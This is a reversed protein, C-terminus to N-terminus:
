GVIGAGSLTNRDKRAREIIRLERRITKWDGIDEWVTELSDYDAEALADIQGPDAVGYQERYAQEEAVLASLKTELEADTHERRLENARVWEFYAHNRQYQKPRGDIPEVIGRASLWELHERAAGESCHARSAVDDVTAPEYLQIATDYVRDRTSSGQDWRQREKEIADTDDPHGPNSM